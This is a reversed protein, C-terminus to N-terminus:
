SFVGEIHKAVAIGFDIYKPGYERGYKTRWADRLPPLFQYDHIVKEPSVGKQQKMRWFTDERELGYRFRDADWISGFVVSLQPDDSPNFDIHDHNRVIIPVLPNSIGAQSLIRTATKEGEVMHEEGYGLHREIDHLLGVLVVTKVIAEKEVGEINRVTCEDDAIFGARMAVDELHEFGHGGASEVSALREKILTVVQPYQTDILERYKALQELNPFPPVDHSKRYQAAFNEAEQQINDYTLEM